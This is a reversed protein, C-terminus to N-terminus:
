KSTSGSYASWVALLVVLYASSFPYNTPFDQVGILDLM